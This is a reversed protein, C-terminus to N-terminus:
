DRTRTGDGSGAQVGFAGVEALYIGLLEAVMAVSGPDLPEARQIGRTVVYELAVDLEAARRGEGIAADGLEQGHETVLGAEEFIELYWGVVSIVDDLSLQGAAETPLREAIWDAADDVELVAPRLTGSLREVASGVAVLAIAVVFLLGLALFLWTM